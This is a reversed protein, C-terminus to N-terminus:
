TPQATAPFRSLPRTSRYVPDSPPLALFVRPLNTGLMDTMGRSHGEDGVLRGLHHDFDRNSLPDPTHSRRAPGTTTRTTNDDMNPNGSSGQYRHRQTHSVDDNPNPPRYTWGNAVARREADRRCINPSPLLSVAQLAQTRPNGGQNPGQRPDPDYPSHNDAM